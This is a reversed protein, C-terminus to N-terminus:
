IDANQQPSTNSNQNLFALLVQDLYTDNLENVRAPLLKDATEDILTILQGWIEKQTAEDAAAAYDSKLSQITELTDKGEPANKIMGDSGTNEEAYKLWAAILAGSSIQKREEDSLDLKNNEFSQRIENLQQEQQEENLASTADIPTPLPQNVATPAPPTSGVPNGPVATSEVDPQRAPAPGMDDWSNTWSKKNNSYVRNDYNLMYINKGDTAYVVKNERSVLPAHSRALVGEDFKYPNDFSGKPAEENQRSEVTHSAAPESDVELGVGPVAPVPEVTSSKRTNLEKEEYPGYYKTGLDTQRQSDPLASPNTHMEGPVAPVAPNLTLSRQQRRHVRAWHSGNKAEGEQRTATPKNKEETGAHVHERSEGEVSHVQRPKNHAITPDYM